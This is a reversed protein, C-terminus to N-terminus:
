TAAGFPGAVLAAALAASEDFENADLLNEVQFFRMDWGADVEGAALATAAAEAASRAAAKFDHDDRYQRAQLEAAFYAPPLSNQQMVRNDTGLSLSIYVVHLRSCRLIRAPTACARVSLVPTITPLCKNSIPTDPAGISFECWM